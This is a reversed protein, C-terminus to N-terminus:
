RRDYNESCANNLKRNYHRTIRPKVRIRSECILDDYRRIEKEPVYFCELNLGDMVKVTVNEGPSTLTLFDFINAEAARFIRRVTEIPIQETRAIRRILERQTVIM